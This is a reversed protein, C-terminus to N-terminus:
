GATGQGFRPEPLGKVGLGQIAFVHGGAPHRSIARGTGSDKISTVYLTDLDPGGFTVCSPMDTPAEVLRDLEGTITFRAIKGAQVLAVWIFGDSDITAGDPGSNFPKTDVHVRPQELPEDGPRYAYARVSRDLSDAFYMTGGDPSFCLSNAIRIGNALVQSKGSADVRFLEGRPEAYIGMTGCVFRGQRDVKGDNFRARLDPTGGTALGISGVVSPTPISQCIGTVPDHSRILRSVSDVWYLRQAEPDWIPSEGLLDPSPSIRTSTVIGPM